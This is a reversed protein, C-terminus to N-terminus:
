IKKVMFLLTVMLVLIIGVVLVLTLYNNKTTEAGLVKVDDEATIQVAKEIGDLSPGVVYNAFFVDPMDYITDTFTYGLDKFVAESIIWRLINPDQVLYIKPSTTSKVLSGPQYYMNHSLPYKALTEISITKVLSFDSYWSFFSGQDIFPHRLSNSDIQYVVASGEVKVLDGASLNGTWEQNDQNTGEDTTEEDTIIKEEEKEETTNSENNDQNTTCGPDELDILGDADDDIGNQCEAFPIAEDDDGPSLCSSDEPYDIAGDHDDDLNNSCAFSRQGPAVMSISVNENQTDITPSTTGTSYDDHTASFTYNNKNNIVGTSDIQYADLSTYGTLGSGNTSGMATDISAADTATVTASELASDEPDNVLARVDYNVDLIGSDVNYTTFTTNDMYNVDSAGPGYQVVDYGDSSAFTSNSITGGPDTHFVVGNSNGTFTEGDYTDPGGIALIAGGTYYDAAYIIRPDHDQDFTVTGDSFSWTYNSTAGNAVFVDDVWKDVTCGDYGWTGCHTQFTGSASYADDRVFFSFYSDEGGDDIHTLALHFNNIGDPYDAATDIYEVEDWFEDGNGAYYSNGAEDYENESFIPTVFTGFFGTAADAGNNSYTNSSFAVAQAGGESVIGYEESGSVTNGSITIGTGHEELYIGYAETDTITNGSVTVNSVEDKLMVGESGNANFTNASVTILGSGAGIRIGDDNENSTNGSITASSPGDTSTNGHIEIGNGDNSNTTNGTITLSGPFNEIDIGNKNSSSSSTNGTITLTSASAFGDVSIGSEASGTIDNNTINLFATIPGDMETVRIGIGGSSTVTNDDLTNTGSKPTLSISNTFTPNTSVTNGSITYTSGTLSMAQAKCSEITNNSITINTTSAHSITLRANVDIADGCGFTNDSITLGTVAAVSFIRGNTTSFTNNKIIWGNGAHDIGGAIALGDATSNGGITITDAGSVGRICGNPASCQYVTLGTVISGDADASFYFPSNADGGDITLSAVGPGTITVPQTIQPFSPNMATATAVSFTITTTGGDANAEQIAAKYTCNGSADICIGDGPNNDATEGTNNVVYNYTAASAPQSNPILLQYFFGFVLFVAM